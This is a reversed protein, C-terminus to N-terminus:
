FPIEDIMDDFTGGSTPAPKPARPTEQKQEPKGGCLTLSNVNVELSFGKSSDKNQYERLSLEGSCAVMQGKTLYPLVGEGAKGWMSCKVWTTVAKEGYGSKVAVSFGVVSKGDTTFRQEAPNGLNGTFCFQNLSM